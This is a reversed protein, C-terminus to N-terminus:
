IIVIHRLRKMEVFVFRLNYKYISFIKKLITFNTADIFSIDFNYM